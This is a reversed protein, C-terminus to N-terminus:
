NFLCSRELKQCDLYLEPAHNFGTSSDFLRLYSGPVQPLLKEKKVPNIATAKDKLGDVDKSNYIKKM